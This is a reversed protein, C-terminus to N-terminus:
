IKLTVATAFQVPWSYYGAHTCHIITNYPRRPVPRLLPPVDYGWSTGGVGGTARGHALFVPRDPLMFHTATTTDFFRLCM